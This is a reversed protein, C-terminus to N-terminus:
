PKKVMRTITISLEPDSYYKHFLASVFIVADESQVFTGKIIGDILVIYEFENM